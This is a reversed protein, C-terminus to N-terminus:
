SRAGSELGNAAILREYTLRKGDMGDAVAAMQEITDQERVNHRGAFEQVYRDLHKPSLKHFTGKHARKLMSWLSEIGNTHIEGKVYESLSHKVTDHNFRLSEYVTADDTYVTAGPAAHDEVFGQLTEQDTSLVVQAAVQKSVRDKAGVVATKGVPGRGTDALAKRRANSMNRRKGGFYTEDVEVPGNFQTKGQSLAARLRHTLFWASKQTIGLDRHLKMSSVSKLSTMMQFTAIIWDQYGIKSGEMVTGTKTSFLKGCKKERCRFPMTPHKAGTQVNVSGCAPCCVGDPWRQQIFWQEATENDPFMRMIQKLSIGKRFAKGPAKKRM